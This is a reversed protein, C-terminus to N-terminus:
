RATESEADSSNDSQNRTNAIYEVRQNREVDDDAGNLKADRM